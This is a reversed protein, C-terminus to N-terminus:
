QGLYAAAAGDGYKADFQASLGPNNILAQVARPSPETRPRGLAEGLAPQAAGGGGSMRLMSEVLNAQVGLPQGIGPVMARAGEVDPNTIPGAPDNIMAQGRAAGEGYPTIDRNVRESLFPIEGLIPGQFFRRGNARMLKAVGAPGETALIQNVRDRPTNTQTAVQNLLAERQMAAGAKQRDNYTATVDGEAAEPASTLSMNAPLSGTLAFRTRAEGQLGYQDALAARDEPTAKGAGGGGGSPNWLGSRQLAFQQQAIGLRGMTSAASARSAGAAADRQRITSQGVDTTLMDGLGPSTYPNYATGDSIKTMELPGKALGYLEGQAGMYDGAVARDRAAQQYGQGLIDGLAGTFNEPNGGARVIMEVARAQDGSYGLGVLESGLGGGLADTKMVSQRLAHDRAGLSLNEAMRSRFADERRGPGSGLVAGLTQWGDM